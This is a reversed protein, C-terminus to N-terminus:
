VNDVIKLFGTFTNRLSEVLSGYQILLTRGGEAIIDNSTLKGWDRASKIAFKLTLGEFFKRRNEINTWYGKKHMKRYPLSERDWSIETYSNTVKLFTGPFSEKLLDFLSGRYYRLMSGGGHKLIMEASIERPNKVDELLAISDLFTRYNRVDNWHGSFFSHGKKFWERRWSIEICIYFNNFIFKLVQFFM